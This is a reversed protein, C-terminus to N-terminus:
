KCAFSRASETSPSNRVCSIASHFPVSVESVEGVVGCYKPAIPCISAPPLLAVMAAPALMTSPSFLVM